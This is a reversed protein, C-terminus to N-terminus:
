KSLKRLEIALNDDIFANLAFNTLINHVIKNKIDVSFFDTNLLELLRKRHSPKVRDKKTLYRYLLENLFRDAVIAAIDTRYSSDKVSKVYQALNEKVSDISEDLLQESTYIKDLGQGIFQLFLPAAAHGITAQALTAVLEINQSYDKISKLSNFFMNAVRPNVPHSSGEKTSGYYQPFLATHNQQVFAVCREDVRNHVAWQVWSEVDFRIKFELFRTKQAADLSFVSFNGDDPNNTLNIQSNPPLKWSYYEQKNILEMTAQAFKTISRNFDDLCLLIGKDTDKYWFPKSYNTRTNNNFVWDTNNQYYSVTKEPVWICEGASNCFEYEKLPLGVLDGLEDLQALNLVVLEMDLEKALDTVLTTKGIGPPSELGIAIPTQGSTQVQKNNEIIYKIINKAETLSLTKDM